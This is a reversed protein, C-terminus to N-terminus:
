QAIKSMLKSILLNTITHGIRKQDKKPQTWIDRTLQWDQYGNPYVLLCEVARYPRTKEGYADFDIIVDRFQAIKGPESPQFLQCVDGIELWNGDDDVPTPQNTPLEFDSESHYLFCLIPPTPPAIVHMIKKKLRQLMTQKGRDSGFALAMKVPM